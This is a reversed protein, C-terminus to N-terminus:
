PSTDVFGEGLPEESRNAFGLEAPPQDYFFLSVAKVDQEPSALQLTLWRVPGATKSRCVGAKYSTIANSM